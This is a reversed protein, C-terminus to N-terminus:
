QTVPRKLKAPKPTVSPDGTVKDSPKPAKGRMAASGILGRELPLSQSMRLADQFTAWAEEGTDVPIIAWSSETVHLVFAGDVEPVDLKEGTRVDVMWDANRYAAMQLAVEPYVGKGTKLDAILRLPKGDERAPFPLSMAVKPDVVAVIFDFTGAYGHTDSYVVGEVVEINVLGRAIFDRVQAAKRKSAEDPLTAVVEDAVAQNGTADLEAILHLETGINAAKDRRNWPSGKLWKVAGEPDSAAMQSLLDVNEVAHEAVVKAAWYILAEKPLANLATTVSVYTGQEDSPANPPWVYSRGKQMARRLDDRDLPVVLPEAQPIVSAPTQEPPAQEPTTPSGLKKPM